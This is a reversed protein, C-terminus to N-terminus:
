TLSPDPLAERGLGWEGRILEKSSVIRVMADPRQRATTASKYESTEEEDGDKERWVIAKVVSEM